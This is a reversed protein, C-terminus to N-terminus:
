YRKGGARFPPLSVYELFDMKIFFRVNPVNQVFFGAMVQLKRKYCCSFKKTKSLTTNLPYRGMFAKFIITRGTNNMRGTRKEPHRHEWLLGRSIDLSSERFFTLISESFVSASVRSILILWAPLSEITTRVEFITATSSCSDPNIDGTSNELNMIFCFASRKKPLPFYGAYEL